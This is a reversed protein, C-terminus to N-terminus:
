SGFTFTQAIVGDQLALADEQFLGFDAEFFLDFRWREGEQEFKRYSRMGRCLVLFLNLPNGLIAPTLDALDITYDSPTTSVVSQGLTGATTALNASGSDTVLVRESQGTGNHTVRIYRGANGAAYAGFLTNVTFRIGGGVAAVADAAATAASVTSFGLDTPMQPVILQPIGLPAIRDRETLAKDGLGSGSTPSLSAVYDQWSLDLINPLLWRLKPDDRYQRPMLNQLAPFLSRNFASGRTTTARNASARIQKLWGDNVRLLNYRKTSGAEGVTIAEDGLLAALALDNSLRKAFAGLVVSEFDNTGSAAAEYLDEFTLYFNSHYKKASYSIRDTDPHNDGTQFQGESAGQTVPENLEIRPIEGSRQNRMRLSVAPLWGSESVTMDVIQEVAKRQMFEGAALSATTMVTPTASKKVGMQTMYHEANEKLERLSLNRFSM